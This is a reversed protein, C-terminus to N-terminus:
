WVFHFKESIVTFECPLGRFVPLTGSYRHYVCNTSCAGHMREPSTGEGVVGASAEALRSVFGLCWVCWSEGQRSRHRSGGVIVPSAECQSEFSRWVGGPIKCSRWGAELQVSVGVSSSGVGDIPAARWPVSFSVSRQSGTVGARLESIRRRRGWGFCALRRLARFGSGFSRVGGGGGGALGSLRRPPGGPRHLLRDGPRWSM